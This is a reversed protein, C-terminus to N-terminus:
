RVINRLHIKREDHYFPLETSLLEYLIIGLSWCDVKFDYAHDNLMEPAVTLVSGCKQVPPSEPVYQCALGFDTLKVDIEEGVEDSTDVLFNEMKVDRHIIGKDHCFAITEVMQRFIVRIQEEQLQEDCESLLGRVDSAMLDFVVCIYQKSEFYSIPALISPHNLQRVVNYESYAQYLDNFSMKRKKFIKVAVSTGTLQDIAESVQAQGGIGIKSM